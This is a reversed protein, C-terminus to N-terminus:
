GDGGRGMGPKAHLGKLRPEQGLEVWKSVRLGLEELNKGLEAVLEEPPRSRGVNEHAARKAGHAGLDLKGRIGAEEAPAGLAQAEMDVASPCRGVPAAVDVFQLHESNEISELDNRGRRCLFTTSTAVSM